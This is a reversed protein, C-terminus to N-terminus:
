APRALTPSLGTKLAKRAFITLLSVSMLEGALLGVPVVGVGMARGAYLVAFTVAMGTGSAVPHAHFVSRANLLGVYFSRVSAAVLALSMVGVLELALGAAPSVVLAIVAAIAGMGGAVAAGIVLTHGLLAGAIAAFRAPERAEVEILVPVVASDQFAGTVIAGAFVFYAALLYYLDTQESRGFWAALFLPLLAEGGRFIAHLPLLILATRALAPPPASEARPGDVAAALEETM